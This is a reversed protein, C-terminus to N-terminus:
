CAVSAFCRWTTPSPPAGRWEIGEVESGSLSLLEALEEVSGNYDVYERLWRVPVKM